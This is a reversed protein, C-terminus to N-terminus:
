PNNDTTKLARIGHWTIESRRPGCVKRVFARQVTKDDFPNSESAEATLVEVNDLTDCGPGVFGPESVGAAESKEPPLYMGPAAASYPPPDQGPEPEPYPPPPATPFSVDPVPVGQAVTPIDPDAADSM